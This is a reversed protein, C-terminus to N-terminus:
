EKIEMAKKFAAPDIMAIMAAMRNPIARYGLRLAQITRPKCHLKIATKDDGGWADVIHSFHEKEMIM